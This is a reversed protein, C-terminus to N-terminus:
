LGIPLVQSCAMGWTVVSLEGENDMEFDPLARRRPFLGVLTYSRERSQSLSPLVLMGVKRYTPPAPDQSERFWAEMALYEATHHLPQMIDFEVPGTRGGSAITRDPLNTVDLEEELGSVGTLVLDPLGVIVLRFSNLPIHDAQLVGKV